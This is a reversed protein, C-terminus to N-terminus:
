YLNSFFNSYKQLEQLYETHEYLKGNILSIMDESLYRNDTEVKQYIKKIECLHSAIEHKVEPEQSRLKEYLTKLSYNYKKLLFIGIVFPILILSLKKKRRIRNIETVIKWFGEM